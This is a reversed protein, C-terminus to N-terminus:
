GEKTTGRGGSADAGRCVSAIGPPCRASGDRAAPRNLARIAALAVQGQQHASISQPADRDAKAEDGVKM